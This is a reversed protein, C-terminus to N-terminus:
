SCYYHCISSILFYNGAKSPKGKRGTSKKAVKRQKPSSAEGEAAEEEEKDHEEELFEEILKPCSLDKEQEWTDSDADYGKWRVLFQRQGKITRQGVIREM